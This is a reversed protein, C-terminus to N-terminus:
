SRSVVPLNLFPKGSVLSIFLLSFSERDFSLSLFKFAKQIGHFAAM